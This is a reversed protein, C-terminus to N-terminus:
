FSVPVLRVPWHILQFAFTLIQVTMSPRLLEASHSVYLDLYDVGLADLSQQLGEQVNPHHTNWLKSTLFIDQRPVGSDRLGQGVESENGQRPDILM